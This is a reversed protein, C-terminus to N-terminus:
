VASSCLLAQGDWIEIGSFEHPDLQDSLIKSATANAVDLTNVNLDLSVSIQDARNFHCRFV